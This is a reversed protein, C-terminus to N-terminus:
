CECLPLKKPRRGLNLKANSYRCGIASKGLPLFTIAFINTKKQSEIKAMAAPYWNTYDQEMALCFDLPAGNFDMRINTGFGAGGGPGKRGHSPAITMTPRSFPTPKDRLFSSSSAEGNMLSASLEDAALDFYTLGSVANIM